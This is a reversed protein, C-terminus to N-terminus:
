GLVPSGLHWVILYELYPGETVSLSAGSQNQAKWAVYLPIGTYSIYANEDM